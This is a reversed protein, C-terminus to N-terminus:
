QREAVLRYTGVCSPSGSITFSVTGEIRSGDQTEQRSSAVTRVTGGTMPAPCTIDREVKCGNDVYRGSNLTCGAGAGMPGPTLSVVTAPLEGCNGSILTYTFLYNGVRDSGEPGCSTPAPTGSTESGCAAVLFLLSTLFSRM